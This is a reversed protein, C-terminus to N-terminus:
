TQELPVMNGYSCEVIKYGLGLKINSQLSATTTIEAYM